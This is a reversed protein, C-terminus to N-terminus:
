SLSHPAHLSLHPMEQCIVGIANVLANVLGSRGAALRANSAIIVIFFISMATISAATRPYSGAALFLISRVASVNALHV